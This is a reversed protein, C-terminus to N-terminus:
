THIASCAVKNLRGSLCPQIKGRSDTDASIKISLKVVGAPKPEPHCPSCTVHTNKGKYNTATNIVLGDMRKQPKYAKCSNGGGSDPRESSYNAVM